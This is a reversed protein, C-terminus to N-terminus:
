RLEEVGDLGSICSSNSMEVVFTRGCRQYGVVKLMVVQRRLGKLADGMASVYLRVPIFILM